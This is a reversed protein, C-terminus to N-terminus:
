KVGGVEFPVSVIKTGGKRQIPHFVEVEFLEGVRNGALDELTTDVVLQYGGATWRKEPTLQWRTEQKSM